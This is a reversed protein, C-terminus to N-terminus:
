LDVDDCQLVVGVQVIRQLLSEGVMVSDFAIMNMQGVQHSLAVGVSCTSSWRTLGVDYM